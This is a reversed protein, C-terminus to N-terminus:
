PNIVPFIFEWSNIEFRPFQETHGVLIIEHWYCIDTCQLFYLCHNKYSKQKNKNVLFINNQWNASNLVTKKIISKWEAIKCEEQFSHDFCVISHKGFFYFLIQCNESVLRVQNLLQNFVFLDRAIQAYVKRIKERLFSKKKPEKNGFVSNHWYCISRQCFM